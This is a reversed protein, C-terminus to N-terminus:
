CSHAGAAYHPASPAACFSISPRATARTFGEMRTFPERPSGYMETRFLRRPTVRRSCLLKRVHKVYRACGKKLFYERLKKEAPVAARRARSAKRVVDAIKSALVGDRAPLSSSNDRQVQRSDCAIRVTHRSGSDCQKAGGTFRVTDRRVSARRRAFRACTDRARRAARLANKTRHSCRMCTPIPTSLRTSICPASRYRSFVPCPVAWGGAPGTLDRAGRVVYRRAGEGATPKRFRWSGCIRRPM